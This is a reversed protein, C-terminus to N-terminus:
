GREAPCPPQQPFASCQCRRQHSRAPRQLPAALAPPEFKFKGPQVGSSVVGRRASAPERAVGVGLREGADDDEATPGRELAVELRADRAAGICLRRGKDSVAGSVLHNQWLAARFTGLEELRSTSRHCEVLVLADRVAAAPRLHLLELVPELADELESACPQYHTPGHKSTKPVIATHM